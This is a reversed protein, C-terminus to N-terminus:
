PGLGRGRIEGLITLTGISIWVSPVARAPSDLGKLFVLQTLGVCASYLCM